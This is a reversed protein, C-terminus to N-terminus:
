FLNKFYKDIKSINFINVLSNQIIEDEFKKEYEKIRKVSLEKGDLLFNVFVVKSTAPIVSGKIEIQKLVTQIGCIFRAEPADRPM